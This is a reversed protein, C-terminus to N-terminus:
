AAPGLQADCQSLLNAEYRFYAEDVAAELAALPTYGRAPLDAHKLPRFCRGIANLEPSNLPAGAAHWVRVISAMTCRRRWSDATLCTDRAIRLVYIVRHECLWALGTALAFGRDALM